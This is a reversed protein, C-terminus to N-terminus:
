TNGFIAESFYLRKYKWYYLAWEKIRDVKKIIYM